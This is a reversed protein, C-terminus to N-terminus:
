ATASSRQPRAPVGLRQPSKSGDLLRGQFVEILYRAHEPFCGDLPTFIDNLAKVTTEWGLHAEVYEAQADPDFEGEPKYREAPLQDAPVTFPAIKTLGHTFDDADPLNWERVAKNVILYLADLTWVEDDRVSRRSQQIGALLMSAKNVRRQEGFSLWRPDAFRVWLDPRPGGQDKPLDALTIIWDSLPNATATANMM